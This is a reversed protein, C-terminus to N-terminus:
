LRVLAEEAALEAGVKHLLLAAVERASQGMQAEVLALEFVQLLVGRAVIPAVVWPAPAPVLDM